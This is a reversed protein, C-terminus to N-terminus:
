GRRCGGGVATGTGPTTDTVRVTSRVPPPRAWGRPPSGVGAMAAMSGRLLGRRDLVSRRLAAMGDYGYCM